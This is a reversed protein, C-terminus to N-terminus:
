RMVELRAKVAFEGDRLSALKVWPRDITHRGLGEHVIHGYAVDNQLFLVSPLPGSRLGAEIAALTDEGHETYPGGEWRSAVTIATTDYSWGARLRGTAIYETDHPYQLNPGPTTDILEAAFHLVYRVGIEEVQEVALDFMAMMKREFEAPSDSM